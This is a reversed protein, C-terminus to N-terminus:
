DGFYIGIAKAAEVFQGDPPVKKPTSVAEAIPVAGVVYNQYSVMQGFKEEEILKVAAVGFRLALVRDLTTPDGGRQLHGLVVERTERKTRKAIEEAVKRGIGGLRHEGKGTNEERWVVKGGKMHAGEAVVVMIAKYDDESRQNIWDAVKEISFPIEPILIINAGGAVGGQLAIWGAHRGMVELVMVRRHSYATTYLRDLADTVCNVASDFGFCTATASIDNDITKPVGVVNIGSQQLQLATTLSGDGGVCILAQVGLEKLSDAANKLIASDVEHKKGEGVKGAFSGKNTTGLITGGIPMIGNVDKMTLVRYEAPKLIGEYGELFGYVEWGMNSAAAVAGYIVANLGPCDGGSTSIGIRRKNM